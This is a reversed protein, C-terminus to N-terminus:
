LSEEADTILESIFEKRVKIRVNESIQITVINKQIAAITGLVGGSTLIRDGKKLAELMSRHKKTKKQQPMILLVYFIVFILLFPLLSVFLGGEPAGTGGTEQAWVLTLFSLM